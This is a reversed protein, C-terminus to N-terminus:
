ELGKKLTVVVRQVTPELTVSGQANDMKGETVSEINNEFIPLNFVIKNTPKSGSITLQVKNAEM